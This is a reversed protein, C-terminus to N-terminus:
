FPLDDEEEDVASTVPEPTKEVDDETINTDENTKPSGVTLETDFEEKPTEDTETVSDKDVWKGSEGTEDKEWVPSGGRVIIELYDYPKVSYVDEWTKGDSDTKWTTTQNADSSLPTKDFSFNVGTVVSNKGDKTISVTVDRGENTSFPDENEPIMNLAANIKDFTGANKGHHNFRWFKVGHEPNDRDIIKVVYMKIARFQYAEKKSEDSGEALLIERAECFPCAEGKEHKPCIFTRWQNDTFKKHGVVEVFPTETEGKPEIVRIQRQASTVGDGLYTSFYNNKDFKTGRRKPTAAKKYQAMMAERRSM